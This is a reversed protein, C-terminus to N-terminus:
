PPVPTPLWTRAPTCIQPRPAPRQHVAAPQTAGAQCFCCCGPQVHAGAEPPGERGTSRSCPTDTSHLDRLQLRAALHHDARGAAHDVDQDGGIALHRGTKPQMGSRHRREHRQRTAHLSGGAAAASCLAPPLHGGAASRHPATRCTVLRRRTVYRTMSSASRMNSMPNSGCTHGPARTQKQRPLGSALRGLQGAAHCAASSQGTAQWRVQVGARAARHSCTVRMLPLMRGSRWVTMNLAVKGRATRAREATAAASRQQQMILQSHRQQAGAACVQQALLVRESGATGPTCTSCSALRTSLLGTSIWTRKDAANDKHRARLGLATGPQWQQGARASSATLQGRCHWNQLKGIRRLHAAPAHDVLVDRLRDLQPRLLLAEHAQQLDQAGPVRLALHQDKDLRLVLAVVQEPVQQLCAGPTRGGRQAPSAM